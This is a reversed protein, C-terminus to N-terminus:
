DLKWWYTSTKMWLSFYNLKLVLFKLISNTIYVDMDELLDKRPKRRATKKESAPSTETKSVDQLSENMSDSHEDPEELSKDKIDVGTEMKVTDKKSETQGDEDEEEEEDEEDSSDPREGLWGRCLASECYCKQAEKSNFCM